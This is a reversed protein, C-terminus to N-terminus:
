AILFSSFFFLVFVIIPRPCLLNPTPTPPPPSEEHSRHIPPHSDYKQYRLTCKQGCHQVMRCQRKCCRTKTLDKVEYNDQGYMIIKDMSLLFLLLYSKYERTYVFESRKVVNELMKQQLWGSAKSQTVAYRTATTNNAIRVSIMLYGTQNCDIADLLVFVVKSLTDNQTEPLYRPM